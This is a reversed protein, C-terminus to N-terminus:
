LAPPSLAASKPSIWSLTLPWARRERVGRRARELRDLDGEAVDDLIEARDEKRHERLDRDEDAVLDDRREGLDDVADAVPDSRVLREDPLDAPEHGPRHRREERDDPRDDAREGPLALAAAEDRGDDVERRLDRRVDDRLHLAEDAREDVGALADALDDARDDPVEQGREALDDGRQEAAPPLVASSRALLPLADAPSTPAIPLRAPTRHPSPVAREGLRQLEDRVHERVHSAASMKTISRIEVEDAPDLVRDGPQVARFRTVCCVASSDIL